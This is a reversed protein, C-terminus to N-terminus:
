DNCREVFSHRQPSWGFPDACRNIVARDTSHAETIRTARTVGDELSQVTALPYPAPSDGETGGDRQRTAAFGVLGGATAGVLANIWAMAADDCADCFAATAFYGIIAGGLVGGVVGAVRRTRPARPRPVPPMANRQTAVSNEARVRRSWLSADPFQVAVSRWLPQGLLPAADLLLASFIAVRVFRLM